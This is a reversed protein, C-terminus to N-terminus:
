TTSVVSESSSRPSPTRYAVVRAPNLARSRNPMSTRRRSTGSVIATRGQYSRDMGKSHGAIDNNVEIYHPSISVDPSNETTGLYQATRAVTTGAAVSVSTPLGLFIHAPGTVFLSAM